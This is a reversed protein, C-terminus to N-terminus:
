CSLSRFAFRFVEGSTISKAGMKAAVFRSKRMTGNGNQAAGRGAKNPHKQEEADTRLKGEFKRAMPIIDREFSRQMINWEGQYVPDKWSAQRIPKNHGRGLRTFGFHTWLYWNDRYM